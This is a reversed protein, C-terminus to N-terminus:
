QLFSPDLFQQVNPAKNLVGTSLLFDTNVEASKLLSTSDERTMFARTNEERSLLKIGETQVDEPSRGTASAIIANGEAPHSRWFDLAEFWANVVARIDDPRQEIVSTRFVLVDPILGPTESSSFIVHGGKAIAQAAFPHWTQGAHITDSLAAPVEEPGMNILIVDNVSLGHAALMRRVLLERFSGIGTGIRKRKLDAVHTIDPAAVIVDAGDSYDAVMVLRANGPSRAALTLADAFAFFGGDLKEAEFDPLQKASVDYLVPQVSGGHKAILDNKFAIVFPSYGPYLSWAVKLPRASGATTPASEDASISGSIVGLAFSLVMLYLSLSNDKRASMENRLNQLQSL